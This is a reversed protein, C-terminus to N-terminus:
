AEVFIVPPTLAVPRHLLMSISPRQWSAVGDRYSIAEFRLAEAAAVLTLVAEIEARLGAAAGFAM